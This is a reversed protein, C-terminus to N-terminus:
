KCCSVLGAGRSFPLQRYSKLYTKPWTRRIEPRPGKPDGFGLGPREAFTAANKGNKAVDLAQPDEVAVDRRALKKPLAMPRSAAQSICQLVAPESHKLNLLSLAGCTVSLGTIRCPHQPKTTNASTGTELTRRRGPPPSASSPCALQPRRLEVACM